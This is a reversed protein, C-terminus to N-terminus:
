FHGSIFSSPPRLSLSQFITADTDQHSSDRSVLFYSPHRLTAGPPCTCDRHGRSPSYFHLFPHTPDLAGQPSLLLVVGNGLPWPLGYDTARGLIEIERETEREEGEGEEEMGEEEEEM